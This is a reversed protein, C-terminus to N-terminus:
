GRAPNEDPAPLVPLLDKNHRKQFDEWGMKYAATFIQWNTLVEFIHKESYDLYQRDRRIKNLDQNSAHYRDLILGEVIQQRTKKNTGPREILDMLAVATEDSIKVTKTM